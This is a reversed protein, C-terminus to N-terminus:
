GDLLHCNFEMYKNMNLDVTLILDAEDVPKNLYAVAGKRKREVMLDKNVLATLFIFPIKKFDPNNILEDHFQDGRMRPM